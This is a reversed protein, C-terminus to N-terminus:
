GHEVERGGTEPVLITPTTGFEAETTIEAQVEGLKRIRAVPGDLTAQRRFSRIGALSISTYGPDGNPLRRAEDRLRLYVEGKKNTPAAYLTGEHADPTLGPEPDYDQGATRKKGRSVATLM